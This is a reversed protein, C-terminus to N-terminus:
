RVHDLPRTEISPTDLWVKHRFTPLLCAVTFCLTQKNTRSNTETRRAVFLNTETINADGIKIFYTVVGNV